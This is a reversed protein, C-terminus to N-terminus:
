SGTYGCNNCIRSNNSVSLINIFTFLLLSILVVGLKVKKAKSKERALLAKADNDVALDRAATPHSGDGKKRIGLAADHLSASINAMRAFQALENWEPRDAGRTAAVGAVPAAALLLILLSFFIHSGRPHM